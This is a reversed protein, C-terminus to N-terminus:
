LTQDSLLQPNPKKKASQQWKLQLIEGSGWRSVPSSVWRETGKHFQNRLGLILPCNLYVKELSSRPLFRVYFVHLFQVM